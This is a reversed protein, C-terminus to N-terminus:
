LSQASATPLVPTGAFLDALLFFTLQMANGGYIDSMALAVTGLRVAQIGSSIEPRGRDADDQVDM